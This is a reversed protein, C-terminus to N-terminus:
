EKMPDPSNLRQLVLEDSTDILDIAQQFYDQVLNHLNTYSIENAQPPMISQRLRETSLKREAVYEHWRTTRLWPSVLRHDPSTQVNELQKNLDDMLQQVIDERQTTPKKAVMVEWFTRHAGLGEAKIRQAKCSRWETPVLVEPHNNKHHEGMNKAKTLIMLCHSCALADTIALGHVVSRPGTIGLPLVTALQLKTAVAQFISPTFAKALDSHEKSLHAQTAPAAVGEKCLQCVIFQFEANVTLNFKALYHDDIFSPNITDGQITRSEDQTILSQTLDSESDTCDKYFCTMNLLSVILSPRDM